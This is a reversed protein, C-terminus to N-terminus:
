QELLIKVVFSKFIAVDPKRQLRLETLFSGLIHRGVLYM